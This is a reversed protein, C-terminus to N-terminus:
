WKKVTAAYSGPDLRYRQMEDNYANSVVIAFLSQDYRHCGGFVDDPLSFNCTLQTEKPAICDELLTCLIVWKMVHKIVYKTNFLIMGTAAAMNAKMEKAGRMPLYDFMHKHTAFVISHRSPTVYFLFGSQQMIMRKLLVDYAYKKVLVISADMWMVGGFEALTEAIILPKFAYTRLNKVYEPFLSFNFKRYDIYQSSSLQNIQQQNLGLDYVVIKRHPLIKEAPAIHAMLENFHNSSVATVPMLKSLLYVSEMEVPRRNYEQVLDGILKGATKMVKGDLKFEKKAVISSNYPHVYRVFTDGGQLIGDVEASSLNKSSPPRIVRVSSINETFLQAYFRLYFIVSTIAILLLVVQSFRQEKM